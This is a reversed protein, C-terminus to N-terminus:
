RLGGEAIYDEANSEDIVKLKAAGERPVDEGQIASAVFEVALQGIEYSSFATNEDATGALINRVDSLNGDLTVHVVEDNGKLAQSTGSGMPGNASFIAGLKPHATLTNTVQSRTQDLDNTTVVTAVVEYGAAEITRTFGEVRADNSAFQGPKQSVIAVEKSGNAPPHDILWKASAVGLQEDPAGIKSLGCTVGTTSADIFVVKVDQECAQNLVPAQAAAGNPFVILGAPDLQLSTQILSNFAPVDGYDIGTKFDVEFGDGLARGAAEAGDCLNSAYDNLDCPFPMTVLILKREGGDSGTSRASNSSDDSGCAVLALSVVLALMSVVLKGRQRARTKTVVPQM